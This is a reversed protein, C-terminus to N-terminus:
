EIIDTPNVNVFLVMADYMTKPPQFIRYSQPILRNMISYSEGLTIIRKGEPILRM